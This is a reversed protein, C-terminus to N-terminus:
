EEFHYDFFDEVTYGSMYNKFRLRLILILVEKRFYDKIRNSVFLERSSDFDKLCLNELDWLKDPNSKIIDITINRNFTLHEYSWPKDPNNMVIEWTIIESLSVWKYDWPKDPNDKVIEWTINPNNLLGNYDWPKDPNDRVIEWTINSNVSLFDYDWPEDPNDRVIDWTINENKSLFIYYWNKDPNDKVINWTIISACSLRQYSWPKDPNDEIFEWTLNRNRSLQNFDWPKDLNNSILELPITENYSLWGYDHGDLDEQTKIKLCTTIISYNWDKDPNDIMIDKSVNYSLENYDWPIDPNNKVIDWTINSNQSLSSYDLLEGSNDLVFQFWYRSWEDNVMKWLNRNSIEKIEEKIKVLDQHKIMLSTFTEGFSNFKLLKSDEKSFLKDHDNLEIYAIYDRIDDRLPVLRDKLYSEIEEKSKKLIEEM